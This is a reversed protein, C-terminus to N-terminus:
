HLLLGDEVLFYVFPEGCPHTREVENNIENTSSIGVRLRESEYSRVYAFSM